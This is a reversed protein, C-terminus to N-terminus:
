SFDLTVSTFANDANSKYVAMLVVLGADNTINVDALRTFAGLIPLSSNQIVNTLAGYSAPYCYYTYEGPAASVGSVSRVRSSQLAKNGLAKIQPGTLSTNTSYGFYSALLFSVSISASTTDSGTAFQVQSGVVILGSKPKFLSQSFSTNATIQVGGNTFSPSSPTAPAFLTAGYTGSTSTPSAEGVGPVPHLYTSDISVKSGTEATINAASSSVILTTGDTQYVDWDVTIQPTVLTTADLDLTFQLDEDGGDNLENILVGQGAVTKNGLYGATTDNSSVKVLEDTTVLSSVQRLKFATGDWAVLNTLSNNVAGVIVDASITNLADNYSLNVTLTDTLINGIIDQVNEPSLMNTYALNWHTIDINAINYAPSVTFYPDVEAGIGASSGTKACIKNLISALSEGKAAPVCLDSCDNVIGSLPFTGKNILIYKKQDNTPM